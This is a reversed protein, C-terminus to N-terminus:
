SLTDELIRRYITATDYFDKQTSQNMSVSIYQHRYTPRDFLVPRTLWDSDYKPSGASNGQKLALYLLSTVM